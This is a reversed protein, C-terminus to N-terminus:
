AALDSLSVGFVANCGRRWGVYQLKNMDTTPARTKNSAFERWFSHLNNKISM